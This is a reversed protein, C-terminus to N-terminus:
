ATGNVSAEVLKVMEPSMKAAKELTGVDAEM